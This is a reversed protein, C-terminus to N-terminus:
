FPATRGGDRSYSSSLSCAATRGTRTLAKDQRKASPRPPTVPEITLGNLTKSHSAGYHWRLLWYRSKALLYPTHPKNTVQTSCKLKAYLCVLAALPIEGRRARLGALARLRGLGYFQIPQSVYDLGGLLGKVPSGHGRPRQSGQM